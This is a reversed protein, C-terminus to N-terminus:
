PPLIVISFYRCSGVGLNYDLVAISSEGSRCSCQARAIKAFEMHRRHSEPANRPPSVVNM